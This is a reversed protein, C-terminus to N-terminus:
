PIIMIPVESKKVIKSTVSGIIYKDLVGQGTKTMIVLHINKNKITDFIEKAPNGLTSIKEVQYGQLLDGARNLVTHSLTTIADMFESSVYDVSQIKIEDIVHLLIIEVEEKPFLTTLTKISELTKDSKDIPVLIRKFKM